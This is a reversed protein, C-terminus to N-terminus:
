KVKEVEFFQDVIEIEMESDLMNLIQAYVQEALTNDSTVYSIGLELRQWLDNGGVESVSVQFKNRIRDKLSRVVHRKGKLSEPKNLLRIDFWCISVFM